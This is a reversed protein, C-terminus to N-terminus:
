IHILSLYVLAGTDIDSALIVDGVSVEGGNLLLSGNSPLKSIQVLSFAGNDSDNFRFDTLNISQTSDEALTFTNGDSAPSVNNSGVPANAVLLSDGSDSREVFSTAFTGGEVTTTSADTRFLLGELLDPLLSQQPAIVASDDFAIIAQYVEQPDPLGLVPEVGEGEWAILANGNDLLSVSTGFQDGAQDTVFNQSASVHVGDFTQSEAQIYLPVPLGPADQATYAVVFNGSSNIDVSAQTYQRIADGQVEYADTNAVGDAHFTRAYIRSSEEPDGAFTDWVVM